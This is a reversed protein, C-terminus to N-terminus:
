RHDIDFLGLLAPTGHVQLLDNCYQIVNAYCTAKACLICLYSKIHSDLQIDARFYFSDMASPM